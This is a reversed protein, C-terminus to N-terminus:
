ISRSAHAFAEVRALRRDLLAAAYRACVNKERQAWASLPPVVRGLLSVTSFYVRAPFIGSSGGLGPTVEILGLIARFEAAEPERDELRAAARVRDSVPEAAAGAMLARWYHLGFQCMAAFSFALLVVPLM